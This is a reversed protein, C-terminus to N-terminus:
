ASPAGFRAGFYERMTMFGTGDNAALWLAAELAGRAFLSRSQAAHRLTIEDDSGLFRIEHEGIVNGARLSHTQVADPAGPELIAQLVKATGSPADQKGAHHTETLVAQYGLSTLLPAATELVAGFAAVGTSFNNAHLVRRRDGLARLQAAQESGLGTTGCVLAPMASERERLWATLRATGAPLSFDVVVEADALTELSGTSSDVTARLDCRDSYENAVLAAVARGMRGTAGVLGIATRSM